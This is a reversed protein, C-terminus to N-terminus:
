TMYDKAWNVNQTNYKGGSLRLKFARQGRINEIPIWYIEDTVSDVAVFVDVQDATYQVTGNKNKTELPISLVEGNNVPPRCASKVQVRYLVGDLKDVIFDYRCNDGYPISVKWGKRIFKALAIAECVNGQYKANKNLAARDVM